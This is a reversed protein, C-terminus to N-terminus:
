THSTLLRSVRSLNCANIALEDIRLPTNKLARTVVGNVPSQLVQRLINEANQGTRLM